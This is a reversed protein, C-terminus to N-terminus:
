PQSLRTDAAALDAETLDGVAAKLKLGTLLLDYRAADLDKHAAALQQQANLVDVRTRIGVELGTRTSQIQLQSSNVAAELAKVRALGAVLGLHAERAELGAQRRREELDFRAKDLGAQAERVGAGTRGGDYLPWTLDVGLKATQTDLTGSSLYANRSDSFSASLNVKPRADARVRGVGAQAIQEDLQALRVPLSAAEAQRIWDAQPKDGVGPLTARTSWVALVPLPTQIIKELARRRVEVANAAEIEQARTLDFRAQAEHTDTITAVGVEFGLRAQALQEAIAAQQAKVVALASEAKLVEFYAQATRLILDQEARRLAIGAQDAQLRGQEVGAWTGPAYLPQTLSVSYGYPSYGVAPTASTDTESRSLNASVAVAPLIAARALPWKEQGALFAQRAAAFGADHQQALRQLDVLGAAAAPVSLAPVAVTALALALVSPSRM